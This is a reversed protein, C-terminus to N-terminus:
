SLVVGPNVVTDAALKTGTGIVTINNIEASERTMGVSCGNEIIVNEGVIARKILVNEGIKVNPMIVSDEIISNNGVKVGIFLVSHKVNGAVLCGDNLIANKIDADPLIFHPPLAYNKSYIRWSTDFLKFKSQVDLLDINAEWLSKITGVDKWYGKFIYAYINLSNKVMEPIINKGFDHVSNADREDKELYSRLFEKNFVYIGMSALNNQPKQPKEEFNIIKSNKDIDLIGFRNAEDWPVEIVAITAEANNEKHRKIMKSYDMKYIHDGSLVLVYDPDYLDIFKFNQYVANATGKYWESNSEKVFPPLLSVGGNRFDLDWSDGNGIYYNLILPQYQTLVGVTDIGSNRCNSLTFDIIRYKGGFPVAPKALKKTLTGLRSGQGGALLMAVCEKKGM